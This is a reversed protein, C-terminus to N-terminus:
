PGGERPLDTNFRNAHSFINLPANLLPFWNERWHWVELRPAYVGGGGGERNTSPVVPAHLGSRNPNKHSKGSHRLRITFM